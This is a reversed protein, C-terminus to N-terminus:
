YNATTAVAEALAEEMPFDAPTQVLRAATRM